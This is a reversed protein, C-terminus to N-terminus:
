WEVAVRGPPRVNDHQVATPLNLENVESHRKLWVRVRRVEPLCRFKTGQQLLGLLLAEVRTEAANLHATSAECTPGPGFAYPLQVM